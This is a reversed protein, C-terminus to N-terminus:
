RQAVAWRSLVAPRRHRRLHPVSQGLQRTIDDLPERPV